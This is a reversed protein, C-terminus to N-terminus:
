SVAAWFAQASAQGNSAPTISSPMATLGTSNNAVRLTSVTLNGNMSALLASPARFPSPNTTCNFLLALWYMGPTVAFSSSFTATILGTSTILSSIDASGMLTGAFNYLGMWNAGATPTVAAASLNIYGKTLTTSRSIALANLLLVGGTTASASSGAVLPDSTWAAYGNAALPTPMGLAPGNSSLAKAFNAEGTSRFVTLPADIETGADSFRALQFDSGANSGSESTSNVRAEWREGLSRSFYRLARTAGTSGNIDLRDSNSITQVGTTPDVTAQTIGAAKSIAFSTDNYASTTGEIWGGSVQVRRTNATQIGYAPSRNGTNDDNRGVYTSCGQFVAGPSQTTSNTGQLNFGAWTGTSSGDRKAQCGILLPLRGGDVATLHFGHKGSRDTNCGLLVLSYSIGSINYGYGANFEARCGSMTVANPNVLVFGDGGNGQSYCNILDVDTAGGTTTTTLNFGNGDNTSVTLNEFIMGAGNDAAIGDGTFEWIAANRVGVDKVGSGISIAAIPGSAANTTSKGNFALGEIRPGGGYASDLYSGNVPAPSVQILTNGTFGGGTAPRLFSTTMNTRPVFHPSWGGGRLTVGLTLVLPSALRYHGPPIYVVGGQGAADIAAQIKPTNDTPTPGAGDAVAGYNLVNLWGTPPIPTGHTHDGRAYTSATGASAALGFATEATVTSALAPPAPTGHTHDGRAYTAGTGASAAQSFSTEPTVTNALPGGPADGGAYINGTVMLNGDVTATGVTKGPVPGTHVLDTMNVTPTTKTLAVHFVNPDAGIFDMEVKYTWLAPSIGDSDPALLTASYHGLADPEVTISGTILSGSNLDVIQQVDPTFIIRGILPDGTGPAVATGSVTVTSLGPPLPM